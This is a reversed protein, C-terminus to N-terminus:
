KQKPNSSSNNIKQLEMYVESTEYLNELKTFFTMKPLFPM